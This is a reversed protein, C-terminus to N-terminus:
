PDLCVSIANMIIGWILTFEHGTQTKDLAGYAALINFLQYGLILTSAGVVLIFKLVQVYPFYCMCHELRLSCLSFATWGLPLSSARVLHKIIQLLCASRKVINGIRVHTILSGVLHM